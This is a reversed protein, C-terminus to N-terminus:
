DNRTTLYTNYESESSPEFQNYSYSSITLDEPAFIFIDDNRWDGSNCSFHKRVKIFVDPVSNNFSDVMDTQKVYDPMEDVERNEWWELERFLHPYKEPNFIKESSPADACDYLDKNEPIATLIRGINYSLRPADAIVLFRPKMLEKSDMM